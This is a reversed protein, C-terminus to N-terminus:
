NSCRVQAEGFIKLVVYINRSKRLSLQLHNFPQGTVALPFFSSILDAMRRGFYSGSASGCRCWAQQTKTLAVLRCINLAATLTDMADIIRVDCATGGFWKPMTVYNFDHSSLLKHGSIEPPLNSTKRNWEQITLLKQGWARTEVVADLWIEEAKWSIASGESLLKRSTNRGVFGDFILKSFNPMRGWSLFLFM